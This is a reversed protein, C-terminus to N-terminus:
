QASEAAEGPLPYTKLDPLESRTVVLDSAYAKQVMSAETYQESLKGLANSQAVFEGSWTCFFGWLASDRRMLDPDPITGNESLVVMKRADTYRAAQLFKQAQSGYVHEGAYIDEGIIDVYEDGPYWAADQGNWIWILNNLGHVNVLRDYLTRYLEIYPEPGAAGWWFWGGSAEHLPRWLVPVGADQLKGLEVAIADIDAMLLDYGEPDGGNMIQALDISVYNTYFGQWWIDKHYKEAVNWHWCYTVIGGMEWYEIARETTKLSGAAHHSARSPSYEIMDLGLVAPYEGGTANAICENENGFAGQDCYQGSLVVKGYSDTLYHMLRRANETANPNVLVPEVDFLDEPLAESRRLSVSDIIIWCWYGIVAVEHEGAELYVRELASDQMTRGTTVIEGAREGDVDIYNTKSSNDVSCARVLIDYFGAEPVDFTVAVGDGAAKLNEVKMLDASVRAGGLLRGKEAEVTLLFDDEALAATAALLAIIMALAALGKRWRKMDIRKMMM